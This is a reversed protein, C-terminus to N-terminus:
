FRQSRQDSTSSAEDAAMKDIPEGIAAVLGDDVVQCGAFIQKIRVVQYGRYLALVYHKM